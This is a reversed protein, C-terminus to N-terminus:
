SHAQLWKQVVEYSKCEHQNELGSFVEEGNSLRSPLELSMDAACMLAQRLIDFCHAVHWPGHSLGDLTMNKWPVDPIDLPRTAAEVKGTLLNWYM